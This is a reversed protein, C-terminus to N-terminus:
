IPIQGGLSVTREAPLGFEDAASGANRAMTLFLKEQWPPLGYDEGPIVQIQSIFYAANELNLERELRLDRRAAKLAEPVEIREQYGIRIWVHRIALAKSGLQEITVRDEDKVRPVSANVISVVLVKAHLTNTYELAARMALPTTDRGPSMFIGVGPVRNLPPDAAELESIFEAMPGERETRNRTVISRGRNWILMISTLTAATLLPVWAGHLVKALNSLLFAAEVTWLLFGIGVLQWRPRHWIYHAVALFLATDIVFTGTVAVGYANALKTSSQFILVLVIVGAALTWNIVPIYIQGEFDSTHLIKLRPLYGLRMAQRAVSFSGSIVAQSAIVTAVTSLIVLPVLGWHPVSLFFPNRKDAPHQLVHASQGLYNLVVSPLVIAFWSLRIAGPGFHGRDAYLAEAGTVCLVVGGFTLFSDLGHNIFFEVGWTPSLAQLVSPDSAVGSIGVVGIVAFWVLMIPGFFRGVVASGQRQIVFLFVLIVLAIPVVLHKLGPSVATLGSVASLVSIAPTIVGDGLFLSAGVIGLTVLGVAHAVKYRRILMALAMGGGDGRNHAKMILTAYKFSIILTLSWFILSTIGYVNGPTITHAAHLGYITQETYLPSTGLDGYVIGLAGLALVLKSAHLIVDDDDDGAADPVATTQAVPVNEWPRLAAGSAGMVTPVALQRVTEPAFLDPAVADREPAPRPALRPDAGPGRLAAPVSEIVVQCPRERMVAEVTQNWQGRGDPAAAMVLTGVGLSRAEHVIQSGAQRDRVKAWHGTVRRGVQVRIEELVSEALSEEAPMRADLAMRTTVPITVMVHIGRGNDGALRAATAMVEPVFDRYDFAVLVSQQASDRRRGRRSEVAGSTREAM